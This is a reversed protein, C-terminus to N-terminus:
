SEFNVLDKIILDLKKKLLYLYFKRPSDNGRREESQM